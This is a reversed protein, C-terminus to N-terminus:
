CNGSKCGADNLAAVIRAICRDVTVSKADIMVIVTEGWECM